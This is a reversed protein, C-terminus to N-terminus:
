KKKLEELVFKGWYPTPQHDKDLVCPPAAPHFDWAIWPLNHDNIYSLVKPAWTYPDEHKPDPECGVEGVLVAYRDLAVGIRADWEERTTGKWPYIHTAYIVAHEPDDLAHGDVIGSLDYAWDLGGAVVVNKAGTARVTDLLRQMGPSKYTVVEDKDKEEIVGGSKWVDWSVDHPENYLDFLVAPNNAYRAAADKWFFESNLDPMNHLGIRAGWHGTNSWQLDLVVYAKKAAAASIVGDVISRYVSGDDSQSPAMGFWRDQAVPLRIVNVRWEDLALAVLKMLEGDGTDSWELCAINVGRLRVDKGDKTRIKNGVVALAPPGSIRSMSRGKQSRAHSALPFFASGLAILLTIALCGASKMPTYEKAAANFGQLRSLAKEGAV